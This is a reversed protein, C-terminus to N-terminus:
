AAAKKRTRRPQVQEPHATAVPPVPATAESAAPAGSMGPQLYEAVRAENVLHAALADYVRATDGSSFSGLMSNSGQRIFKIQVM